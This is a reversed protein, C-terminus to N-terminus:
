RADSLCAACSAEDPFSAQFETLSRARGRCTEERSASTALQSTVTVHYPHRPCRSLGARGKMQQREKSFRASCGISLFLYPVISSTVPITGIYITSALAEVGWVNHVVAM